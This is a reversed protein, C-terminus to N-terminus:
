QWTSRLDWGTGDTSGNAPAIEPFLVREASLGLAVGLVVAVISILLNNRSPRIEYHLRM